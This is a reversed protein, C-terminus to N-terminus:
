GRAPGQGDCEPAAVQHALAVSAGSASAALIAHCVELNAVGWAGTQLPSIGDRVAAILASLVPARPGPLAAAPRFEKREDGYIWIGKPTLRIDGKECSVIVPGFQESYPAAPAAPAMGYTRASKAQVEEEPSDLRALGRRAAGYSGVNKPHGTEGVWDQWEDSDFHAYGSYTLTAVAGGAFRLMATYAGESGRAPDWMGVAATLSDVRGGALVRVVDVQHVAQSFIVGGGQATLLEEPRRPRYLFDTYNLAHIMRVAGLAGSRIVARAQGVPQDFSHSPGVILHVGAARCDAVMQLGNEISVAIPKEVLVHKGHRACVAVHAPHLQHPTAIYVAEVAPDRCLAEIEDYGKGGFEEEFAARAEARPDCAAVLRVRDDARLTPLTLMFARGLGVVGLRLPASPDCNM